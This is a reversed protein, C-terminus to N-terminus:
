SSKQGRRDTLSKWGRQIARAEGMAFGKQNMQEHKEGDRVGESKKARAEGWKINKHLLVSTKHLNLATSLITAM